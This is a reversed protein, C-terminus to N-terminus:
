DALEYPVRYMVWVDGSEQDVVEFREIVGRDVSEIADGERSTLPPRLESPSPEWELQQMNGHASRPIKFVRGFYRVPQKGAPNELGRDISQYYVTGKDSM